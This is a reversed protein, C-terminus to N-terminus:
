SVRDPDGASDVRGVAPTEEGAPEEVEPEEEDECWGTSLADPASVVVAERRDGTAVLANAALLMAGGFVMRWTLLDGLILVALGAAWIPEAAMIIAAHAAPIRTQAWTQVGIALAGSILALYGILLWDTGWGPVQPGRVLAPVSVVVSITMMQITTMAWTQGPTSWRGMSVIHVAYLVAAGLALLEGPGIRADQLSFTTLGLAALGVGTLTRPSSRVRWLLWAVAPTFIVYSGILLGSTSATTMQLGYYQPIQASGYVAGLVMATWWTRRPLGRLAAPRVAWLCFAAIVFRVSLVTLPDHRELLDKSLVFTSGWLATVVSLALFPVFRHDRARTTM